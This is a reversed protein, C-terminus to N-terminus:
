RTSIRFRSSAMKTRMQISRITGSSRIEVGGAATENQFHGQARVQHVFAGGFKQALDTGAEQFVVQQRRYPGGAATRTTEANAMNVTTVEARIREAALASGSVELLGFLNM